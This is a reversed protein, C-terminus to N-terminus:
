ITTCKGDFKMCIYEVLTRGKKMALFLNIFFGQKVVNKEETFIPQM